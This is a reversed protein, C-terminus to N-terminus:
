ETSLCLYAFLVTPLLVAEGTLSSCFRVHIEGPYQLGLLVNIYLVVKEKKTGASYWTVPCRCAAGFVLSLCLSLDRLNTGRLGTFASAEGWILEAVRTTVFFFQGSCGWGDVARRVDRM